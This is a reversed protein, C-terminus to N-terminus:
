MRRSRLSGPQSGVTAGTIPAAIGGVTAGKAPRHYVVPLLSQGQCSAIFTAMAASFTTAVGSAIGDTASYAAAVCPTFYTAGRVVRRNLVTGTHWYGRVGTGGAANGSGSGVVAAPVPTYSFSGQVQGSAVDLVSYAGQVQFALAAPFYAKLATYLTNLYGAFLQAPGNPMLTGDAQQVHFRSIGIGGIDATSNVQFVSMFGAPM